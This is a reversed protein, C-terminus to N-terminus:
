SPQAQHSVLDATMPEMLGAFAFGRVKLELDSENPPLIIICEGQSNPTNIRTYHNLPQYLM